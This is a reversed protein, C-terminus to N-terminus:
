GSSDDESLVKVGSPLLFQLPHSFFMCLFVMLFIPVSDLPVTSQIGRQVKATLCDTQPELSTWAAQLSSQTKAISATVRRHRRFHRRARHASPFSSPLCGSRCVTSGCASWHEPTSIVTVEWLFDNSVPISWHESVVFHAKVSVFVCPSFFPTLQPGPFLIPASVTHTSQAHMIHSEHGKLLKSLCLTLSILFTRLYFM